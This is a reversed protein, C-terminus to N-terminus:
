QKSLVAVSAIAVAFQSFITSVDIITQRLDLPTVDRPVVISSGPPISAVDMNLWSREMKRASGDPLVVFTQSQDAFRAYGGSRDVYDGLSEGARYPYSGPQMVQGLVMVTSPRQPIYIVDGPELLPDLDPKAALLSPDAAVTIRGVAKQNRLETVFTQMSSFTMPDIKDNGVRTMAVILQEEIESAARMYGEHEAAAASQRLFVTGSPYAVNTLGGARALLDSLHDGRTLRYAGVFRVQGQVTAVGMNTDTFVKNIRLEDHPRVVYSALMGQRLPLMSRRTQARGTTIDIATSVLEVSSEDASNAPGGAAILLDQLEANPGVLYTGPGRVAGDVTVEHDILFNILVLQDVGLQKALQAFNEVELNSAFGAGAGPTQVEFNRAESPVAGSSRSITSRNALGNITNEQQTPTENTAVASNMLANAVGGNSGAMGNQTGGMQPGGFQTGGAQANGNQVGGFQSGDAQTGGSQNAGNQMAGNQTAGNQAGAQNDGAQMGGAQTGSRSFNGNAGIQNNAALPNRLALDRATQQRSYETVTAVLMRFEDVSLVRVVDDTQLPLNESGNLVAVPTFAVLTRLLTRPDRRAILGILTFPSVGLAGPAKLVDALTTAHTIPFYGALGTGGSLTASSITQDAGLQVFLIESDGVTTGETVAMLSSQGDAGIRLVSLRYNGKVEQGGALSLLARAPLSSRGAPLEYIGPQRVLGTVAVVKGLLPVAIRDGDALRMISASGSHDTLVSYLDVTYTHGGRVIRVNRLSGSKKIGGSLLIADVVSALGSVTRQGPNNVEGSVLVSMQRVRGVSVYAETAVYARHVAASVDQRFSGFSRGTAPIPNLRPLVVQGDRNVTVRSESNEQGRLSVVIEDGPGLIYDDQVGGTQAVTVPHGSGFEKYGFLELAVGARQSLIRELRSPPIVENSVRDPQQTIVTPQDQYGGLGGIGGIGGLGGLGGLGSQGQRGYQQQLQQIQDPSMQSVAPPLQQALLPASFGTVIWGALVLPSLFSALRLLASRRSRTDQLM